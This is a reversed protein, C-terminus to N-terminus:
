LAHWWKTQAGECLTRPPPSPIILLRPQWRLLHGGSRFRAQQEAWAHVANHSGMAMRVQEYEM